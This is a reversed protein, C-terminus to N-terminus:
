ENFQSLSIIIIITIIVLTSKGMEVDGARRCTQTTKTESSNKRFVYKFKYIWDSLNGEDM